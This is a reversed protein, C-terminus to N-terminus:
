QGYFMKMWLLTAITCADICDARQLFTDLQSLQCTVVDLPEPEDGELQSPYLDEALVIHMKVNLSGPSLGMTKIPTLRGAAFGIEEQLERNAAPLIDEGPDINGKPLSVIYDEMGGAYERVLLITDADQLAVIAVAQGTKTQIQEYQRLTGNSFQLEQQEITFLKSACVPQRALIEPKAM